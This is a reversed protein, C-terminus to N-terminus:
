VAWFNSMVEQIIFKTLHSLKLLSWHLLVSLIGLLDPVLDVHGTIKQIIKKKRIVLIQYWSHHWSHYTYSTECTWLTLLNQTTNIYNGKKLPFQLLFGLLYHFSHIHLHLSSSPLVESHILYLIFLFHFTISHFSSLFLSFSQPCYFWTLMM